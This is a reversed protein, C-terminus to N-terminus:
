PTMSFDTKPTLCVPTEMKAGGKAQGPAGTDEPTFPSHFCVDKM